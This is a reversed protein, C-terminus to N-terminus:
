QMHSLERAAPSREISISPECSIINGRNLCAIARDVFLLEIRQKANNAIQIFVLLSWLPLDGLTAGGRWYEVLRASDVGLGIAGATAIYVAKPLDFATLFASRVAGGVGFVGAFFGSLGGGVAATITSDKFKFSPNLFLFLTYAVLFGGLIRSLMEEPATFVFHAGLWTLLVGPIGFAFVLRWNFGKRFLAIKWIDGFWHIIGVLLLTMPLPFWILLVPVMITSTGFGTITGVMGAIITLLAILAIEM